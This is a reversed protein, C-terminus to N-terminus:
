TSPAPASGATAYLKSKTAPGVRGDVAIATAAQYERVAYLTGAGFQGDVVLGAGHANLLNQLETVCGSTQGQVIEAPCSASTLKIPAPAAAAPQAGLVVGASVMAATAAFTGIRLRWGTGARRYTRPRTRTHTDRPRPDEARVPSPSVPRGM